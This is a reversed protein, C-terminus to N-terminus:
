FFKKLKEKALYKKYLENIIPEFKQLINFIYDIKDNILKQENDDM